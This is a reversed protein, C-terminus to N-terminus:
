DLSKLTEEVVARLEEDGINLGPERHEPNERYADAEVFLHSLAEDAKSYPKLTVPGLLDILPHWKAQYNEESIEGRIKQRFLARLQEGLAPSKAIFEYQEDRFKGALRIYQLVFQESPLKGDLYDQLLQRMEEM